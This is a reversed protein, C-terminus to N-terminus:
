PTQLAFSTSSSSSCGGCMGTDIGLSRHPHLDRDNVYEYDNPAEAMSRLIAVCRRRAIV